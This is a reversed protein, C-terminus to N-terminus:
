VFVRSIVGPAAGSDARLAASLIPLYPLPPSSAERRLESSRRSGTRPPLPWRPRGPSRRHSRRVVGADSGALGSATPAPRLAQVSPPRSRRVVSPPAARILIAADVEAPLIVLLVFRGGSRRQRAASPRVVLLRMRRM